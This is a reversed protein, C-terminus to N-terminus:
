EAFQWRLGKYEKNNKCSRSINSPYSGVKEAADHLSSYLKTNGHADISQVKKKQKIHAIRMNRIHEETFTKGTNIESMRKKYEKTHKLGKYTASGGLSINYGKLPNASDFKEIYEIELSEAEKRTLRNKIIWHEFGHWGYKRIASQLPKNHHYGMDRRQELTNKTMGVYVKGDPFKYAYVKYPSGGTICDVPEITAGNIDTISGLHKM